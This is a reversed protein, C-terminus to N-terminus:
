ENKKWESLNFIGYPIGKEKQLMGYVQSLMREKIELYEERPLERNGVAHRLNKSNFCFMSDHVNECNHCFYCDSCNVSHSVEFCRTINVSSYCKLCFKSSFVFDSGFIYEGSRPWFSYACYKSYVFADGRYCFSSYGHQGVEEVEINEGVVSEAAYLKIERLMEAANSLSLGRASELSLSKKGLEEGEDLKIVRGRTEQFFSFFSLYVTKGSLASKQPTLMRVDRSLWEAYSDLDSLERGLLVKALSSFAKEIAPYAM